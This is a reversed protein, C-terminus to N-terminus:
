TESSEDTIVYMSLFYLFAFLTNALTGGFFLEVSLGTFVGQSFTYAPARSIKSLTHGMVALFLALTILGYSYAVSLAFSETVGLKKLKELSPRAESTDPYYLGHGLVPKQAIQEVSIIWLQSRLFNSKNHLATFLTAAVTLAVVLAAFSPLLVKNKRVLPVFRIVLVVVILIFIRNTGAFVINLVVMGIFLLRIRTQQKFQHNDLLYCLLVFSTYASALTNNMVGPLRPFSEGPRVVPTSTYPLDVGSLLLLNTLFDLTFILQIVLFFAKLLKERGAIFLPVLATFIFQAWMLVSYLDPTRHALGWVATLLISGIFFLLPRNRRLESKLMSTEVTLLVAPALLSLYFINVGTFQGLGVILPLILQRSLHLPHTNM